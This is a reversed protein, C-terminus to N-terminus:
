ALGHQVAHAAAAGRTHVHLKTRIHKVHTSVTGPSIFLATAIERDSMGRVLLQLVELERASLGHSSNSPAAGALVEDVVADLSLSRGAEWAPSVAAEPVAARVAAVDHDFQAQAAPQLPTGLAEALAATAGLLRAARDLERQAVALGGLGAVIGLIDQQAGVRHALRM